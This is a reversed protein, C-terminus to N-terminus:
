AGGEIDIASDTRTAGTAYSIEYLEEKREIIAQALSKIMIARQHFTMARLAPGGVHRAHDLMAEFDLGESGTLAITEGTVASSIESTGGTATKWADLAYNQLTLISSTMNGRM